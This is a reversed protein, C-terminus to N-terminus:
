CDSPHVCAVGARQCAHVWPPTDAAPSLSLMVTVSGASYVPFTTVRWNSQQLLPLKLYHKNSNTKFWKISFSAVCEDANFCSTSFDTRLFHTHWVCMKVYIKQEEFRWAHIIVYIWILMLSYLVYMSKYTCAEYLYLTENLWLWM